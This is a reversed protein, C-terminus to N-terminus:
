YYMKCPMEIFVKSARKDKLSMECWELFEKVSAEAKFEGRLFYDEGKPITDEVGKHIIVKVRARPHAVPTQLLDECTMTIDTDDYPFPTHGCPKRECIKRGSFVQGSRIGRIGNVYWNATRLIPGHTICNLVAPQILLPNICTHYPATQDYLHLNRKAVPGKAGRLGSMLFSPIFRFFRSGDITDRFRRNVAGCTTIDRRHVLELLIMELLEFTNIVATVPSNGAHTAVANLGAEELVRQEAM